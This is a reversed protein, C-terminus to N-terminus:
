KQDLQDFCNIGNIIVNYEKMEVKPLFYGKHGMIVASDEFLLVVLRNVEQFIPDILYDLYQYWSDLYQIM